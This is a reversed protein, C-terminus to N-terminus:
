TPCTPWCCPARGPEGELLQKFNLEWEEVQEQLQKRQQATRHDAARVVTARFRHRRRSGRGDAWRQPFPQHQSFALLKCYDKQPIPDIKHDHCRACDVTLGLFVQGTTAVIDDLGDYRSQVADTPEDDWIGLRYFGTAVIPESSTAAEPMEDGALQEKVFRDYPKDDNFSKIVYDRYRWANPKANDREYSNTEAYRVLDLWHRGWKEGYHPSALLRDIVKEYADASADAVFADIEEPTPPLGTLDYYARRILQARPRRPRPRCTKEAAKEPRVRRDPQVWPTAGVDPM